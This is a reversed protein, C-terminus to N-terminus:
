RPEGAPDTRLVPFTACFTAGGEANNVATISGRHATVISKCIALGVGTGGAKTSWFADFISKLADPAIGTGHDEVCLRAGTGERQTRVLLRRASANVNSMADAANLILNLLCQQLQIRDGEILPLSAALEARPTVQRTALEAQVLDLTERVVQNLDLPAMRMEGRKFLAGLSRIIAAARVDETVIDDCITRIEVLDPNAHSLMKRAAEANGLIAALPQNLQHAISASFQGVVSVRTMHTLAARDKEAQLEAAKRATIDLTVGTVSKGASKDVRGRAVMWRLEGDPEIVRYELDVERDTAVAERVARDLKERDEPHLAELAEKIPVPASLDPRKPIPTLPWARDRGVDWMWLSLRAARAALTMREESEMLAQATRLRQRRGVLLAVILAAQLLIAATLALAQNRYAQWLTPQKFQVIADAPIMSEDIGWRRVQRWDVNWRAPVTEPLTLTAPTAGDLLTNVSLAAQRGMEAFTPVRGGVAGTGIFSSFPGYIPAGSVEAMEVAIDRPASQRGAGDVYYGPTFVVDNRDLEAVRKMVEETRLGALFEVQPPKPLKAVGARTDAEYNRDTYSAGTVVVLRRANPHWSLAQKMTGLYDYEVPVGAFNAPLPQISEIFRKDIGLHIVPVDPFLSARQRLWFELAPKGGLIIVAPPRTNYKEILFRAFTQEFPNGTFTPTDLFETFMAVHRDATSVIAGRLGTDIEINSPLLRNNSFLVLVNRTEMAQVSPAAFFCCAVLLWVFRMVM